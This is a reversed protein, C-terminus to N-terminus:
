DDVEAKVMTATISGGDQAEGEGEIEVALVAGELAALLDGFALLDGENDFLTRGEVIDVVYSGTLNTLEVRLSRSPEDGDISVLVALGEFEVGDAEDADYDADDETEVKISVAIFAGGDQM